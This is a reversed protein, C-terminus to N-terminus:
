AGKSERYKDWRAKIAKASSQKREEATMKKARAYGGRTAIVTMMSRKEPTLTKEPMTFRIAM